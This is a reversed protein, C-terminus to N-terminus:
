LGMPSPKGKAGQAPPKAGVLTLHPENASKNLAVQEVVNRSLAANLLLRRERAGQRLVLVITALQAFIVATLALEVPM